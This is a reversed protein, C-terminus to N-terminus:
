VPSEFTRSLGTLIVATQLAMLGILLLAIGIFLKDCLSWFIQRLINEPQLFAGESRSGLPVGYTEGAVRLLATQRGRRVLASRTMLQDRGSLCERSFFGVSVEIRPHRRFHGNGVACSELFPLPAIGDPEAVLPNGMYVQSTGIAVLDRVDVREGLGAWLHLNQGAAATSAPAVYGFVASSQIGLNGFLFRVWTKLARLAVCDLAFLRHGLRM